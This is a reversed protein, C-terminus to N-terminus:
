EYGETREGGDITSLGRYITLDINESLFVVQGGAFAFNAGGTHRSMFAGNVGYQAAGTHLQTGTGPPTNLPNETTRFCDAHRLTYSWINSSLIEHGDYVEGVMITNSLGDRVHAVTRPVAYVFMGTNKLKVKYSDIGFSPGNTGCVLGYSGTATDFPISYHDGVLPEATDTPCVYMEPRQGVAFTKEEDDYWSTDQGPHRNWVGGRDMGFKEYLPLQELQPLIHVFASAGTRGALDRGACVWVNIGDCGVRAPPFFGHLQEYHRM